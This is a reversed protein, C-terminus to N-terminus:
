ISLEAPTAAPPLDPTVAITVPSNNATASNTAGNAPAIGVDAVAGASIMTPLMIIVVTVSIAHPSWSIAM